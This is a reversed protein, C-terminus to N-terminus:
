AAMRIIESVNDRQEENELLQYALAIIKAHKDPPFQRGTRSLAEQVVDIAMELRPLSPASPAEDEILKPGHGTALWKINVGAKDAMSIADEMNPFTGKLCSRAVSESVGFRRSFSEISNSGYIEKMRDSFETNTKESLESKRRIKQGRGTALWEISVSATDAIAILNNTSPSAGELYKRLGGESVGCRRSFSALSEVGIIERLRIGVKKENELISLLHQDAPVVKKEDETLQNKM